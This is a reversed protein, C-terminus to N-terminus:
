NLLFNSFFYSIGYFLFGFTLVIEFLVKFHGFIMSKFYFLLLVVILILIGRRSFNIEIRRWEGKLVFRFCHFVGYM